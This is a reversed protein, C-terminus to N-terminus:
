EIPRCAPPSGLVTMGLKGPVGYAELLGQLAQWSNVLFQFERTGLAALGDHVAGVVEADALPSASGVTDVDCQAFERFRGKAARDARWVPGIVYRKYPSSLQSGYTGVVRALPVMHDYRLALDAEGSAERVGRKFIKFISHLDMIRSDAMGASM